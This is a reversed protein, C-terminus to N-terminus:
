TPVISAKSLGSKGFKGFIVSKKIMLIEEGDRVSCGGWSM